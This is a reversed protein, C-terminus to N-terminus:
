FGNGAARCESYDPLLNSRQHHVQARIGRCLSPRSFRRSRSARAENLHGLYTSYVLSGTPGLKTLFASQASPCNSQSNVVAGCTMQYAGATVPFRLSSTFGTVYANGSGDVAIAYPRTMSNDQLVSGGIYTSYIL